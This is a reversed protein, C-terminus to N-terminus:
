GAAPASGFLRDLYYDVTSMAEDPTRHKMVINTGQSDALAWLITSEHMADASKDVDGAEQGQRILVAFLEFLQPVGDTLAVGFSPDSISRIFFAVGMLWDGRRREDLPLIEAIIARLISRPTSPVEGSELRAKIGEEYLQSRREIAFLLMEDKTKFYHQVLGMSMGAEAAVHRLSVGELGRTATLRTLAEAIEARRAAHDVQKPVKVM